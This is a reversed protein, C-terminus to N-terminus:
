DIGLARRESPSLKEIARKRLRDREERDRAEQEHRADEKQHDRWWIQLELSKTTPDNVKCWACLIQSMQNPSLNRMPGYIGVSTRPTKEGIEDLFLNLWRSAEEYRSPPEVYCPM